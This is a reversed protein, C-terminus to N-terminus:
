ILYEVYDKILDDLSEYECSSYKEYNKCNIMYEFSKQVEASLKRIGKIYEIIHILYFTAYKTSNIEIEFIIDNNHSRYKNLIM